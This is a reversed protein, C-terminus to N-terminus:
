RSVKCEIIRKETIIVDVPVDRRDHAVAPLIQEEFALAIVPVRMRLLTRDYFGKGMGLRNGKEDFALGPVVVIEPRAEDRRSPEPINYSGPKLAAADIFRGFGLVSGKVFPLLITKKCQKIFSRTNVESQISWYLGIISAKQFLPHTALKEMIAQSKEGRDLISTRRAAAQERQKNKM